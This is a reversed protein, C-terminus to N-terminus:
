RHNSESMESILLTQLTDSNLNLVDSEPLSFFFSGIVNMMM